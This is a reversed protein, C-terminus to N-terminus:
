NPGANTDSATVTSGPGDSSKSSTSVATKNETAVRDTSDLCPESCDAVNAHHVSKRLM